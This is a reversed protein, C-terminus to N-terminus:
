LLEETRYNQALQRCCGAPPVVLRSRDEPPWQLAPEIYTHFSCKRGSLVLVPLHESARSQQEPTDELASLSEPEKKGEAGPRGEAALRCWCDLRMGSSCSESFM